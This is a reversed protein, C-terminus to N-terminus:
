NTCTAAKLMCHLAHLACFHPSFLPVYVESMCCFDRDKLYFSFILSRLCCSCLEARAYYYVTAPLLLLRSFFLFSFVVGKPTLKILLWTNYRAAWSTTVQLLSCDLRLRHTWCLSTRSYGAGFSSCCVFWCIQLLMVLKLSTSQRGFVLHPPLTKEECSPSRCYSASLPPHWAIARSLGRGQWHAARTM